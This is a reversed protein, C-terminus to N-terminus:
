RGSLYINSSAVGVIGDYGGYEQIRYYVLTVFGHGASATNGEFDEFSLDRVTGDDIDVSGTAYLYNHRGRRIWQRLRYMRMDEDYAMQWSRDPRWGNMSGVLFVDQAVPGGPVPDLLFEIPVYEDDISSVTSTVMAGDDARQMFSGNRRLDSLPLRVPQGTTPFLGTNTADLIRYENEAPIQGVRFIKGGYLVGSVSALIGPRNARTINAPGTLFPEYWRNNRYTAATTCFGDILEGPRATFRTEITLATGSVQAKPEYFDTIFNMRAEGKVQAAFFRQQALLSDTDLDFLQLLWNGSFRVQLQANPVTIKGRYAYWRSRAPAVTWDMLMTRNTVDNLFGNQDVQWDATCHVIRAYLNPINQHQVDFEVTVTSAGVAQAPASTSPQDLILIPPMREDSGGYARIMRIAPQEAVLLRSALVFLTAAVALRGTM